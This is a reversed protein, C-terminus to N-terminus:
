KRSLIELIQRRQTKLPPRLFPRPAMKVTGLELARPYSFGTEDKLNTGYSGIIERQTRRVKSTMSKRLRLTVMKPPEGPKSPDLGTVTEGSASVRLPQSRSLSQDIVGLIHAMAVLMNKEIKAAYHARVKDPEWRKITM